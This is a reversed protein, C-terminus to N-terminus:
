QQQVHHREVPPLPQPAFAHWRRWWSNFLAGPLPFPLHADAGIHFTTPTEIQFSWSKNPQAAETLAAYSTQGAWPHEQPALAINNIQWPIDALQITSPLRPLWNQLLNQSLEAQLSTLRLWAKDGAQIHSGGSKPRPLGMLPTLTFPKTQNSQHLSDAVHPDVQQWQQFWFGHVARGTSGQIRGNQQATLQLVISTIM